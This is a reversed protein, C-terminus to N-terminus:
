IAADNKNDDEHHLKQQLQLMAEKEQQQQLELAEKAAQERKKRATIKEPIVYEDIEDNTIKVQALIEQIKLQNELIADFEEKSAFGEKQCALLAAAYVNNFLGERFNRTLHKAFIGNAEHCNMDTGCAKASDLYDKINDLKKTFLTDVKEVEGKTGQYRAVMVQAAKKYQENLYNTRLDQEADLDNVLTHTYDAFFWGNGKRGCTCNKHKAATLDQNNREICADCMKEISGPVDFEAVLAGKFHEAVKDQIKKDEEADYEKEAKERAQAPIKNKLAEPLADFHSKRNPVPSPSAQDSAQIFACGFLMVVLLINKQMTNEMFFNILLLEKSVNTECQFLLM